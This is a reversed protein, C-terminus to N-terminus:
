DELRARMSESLLLCRTGAAVSLTVPGRPELSGGGISGSRVCGTPLNSPWVRSGRVRLGGHVWFQPSV